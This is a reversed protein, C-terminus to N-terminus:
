HAASAPAAFGLFGAFLFSLSEFAKGATPINWRTQAAALSLYRFSFLTKLARFQDRPPQDLFFM